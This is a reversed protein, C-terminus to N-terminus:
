NIINSDTGGDLAPIEALGPHITDKLFLFFNILKHLVPKGVPITQGTIKDCWGAYYRFVSITFEIDGVSDAFPKGNDITELQQFKFILFHCLVYCFYNMKYYFFQM